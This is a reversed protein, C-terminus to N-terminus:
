TWNNQFTKSFSLMFIFLFNLFEHVKMQGVATLIFKEGM